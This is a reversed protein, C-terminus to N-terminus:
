KFKLFGNLAHSNRPHRRGLNQYLALLGSLIQRIGYGFLLM